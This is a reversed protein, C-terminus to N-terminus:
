LAPRPTSLIRVLIHTRPARPAAIGTTTSARTAAAHPCEPELEDVDFEVWDEPEDITLVALALPTPVTSTLPEPMVRYMSLASLPPLTVQALLGHVPTHGGTSTDDAEVAPLPTVADM